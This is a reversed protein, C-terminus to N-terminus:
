WGLWQRLATLPKRFIYYFLTAKEGYLKATGRLGIRPPAQSSVIKATVKYAPIGMADQLPEYTAYSVVASLPKLPAIDLFLYVEHGPAIAIADKVPVMVTIEVANPDAIRLIREGVRVPRGKWALPDDIIAVGNRASVLQTNGHRSAAFEMEKRRLDVQAQLRAVEGRSEPDTFAAQQTRHLEVEAVQLARRSVDSSGKLNTAEMEVLLDGQRVQQNPQVRVQAVVGDLPATVVFPADPTIEASALVSMRVPIFMIAVLAVVGFWLWRQTRKKGRWVWDWHLQPGMTLRIALAYSGALHGLLAIEHSVWAGERALILGGQRGQWGAILPLWLLDPPALDVWDRRQDVTLQDASIVCPMDAGEQTSLHRAVSEIWTVYPSTRDVESLNSLRTVKLAENERGLLLVAQSFPALNRTENVILFGVEQLTEAARVSQELHLLATFRNLTADM